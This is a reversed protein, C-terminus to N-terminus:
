PGGVSILLGDDAPSAEYQSLSGQHTDLVLRVKDPHVCHRVRDAWKSQVAIKQETEYPSKLNFMDFVIRPPSDLTFSKYDKIAGDAKVSVVLKNELSTVTVAELHTAVPLDLVATEPASKKEALSMTVSKPFSIEVGEDVPALDYPTDEKLSIFIKAKKTQDEFIEMVEISSIIENEPPMYMSKLNKLGTDPFDVLLGRPAAQLIATYELNQNGKVFVNVARTNESTMIATIRRTEEVQVDAAKNNSACRFFPALMMFLVLSIASKKSLNILKEM